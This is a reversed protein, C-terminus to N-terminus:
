VRTLLLHGPPASGPAWGNQEAKQVCRDLRQRSESPLELQELKILTAAWVGILPLDLTELCNLAANITNADVPAQPTAALVAAVARLSDESDNRFDLHRRLEDLVLQTTLTVQSNGVFARIFPHGRHQYVMTIVVIQLLAPVVISENHVERLAGMLRHVASLHWASGEKPNTLSRCLFMAMLTPITRYPLQATPTAIATAVLGMLAGLCTDFDERTAIGMHADLWVQLRQVPTLSWTRDPMKELRRYLIRPDTNILDKKVSFSRISTPKERDILALTYFCSLHVYAQIREQFQKSVTCLGANFRAITWADEVTIARSPDSAAHEIVQAQADAHLDNFAFSPFRSIPSTRNM